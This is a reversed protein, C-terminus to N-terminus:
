HIVFGANIDWNVFVYMWKPMNLFRYMWISKGLKKIHCIASNNAIPPYCYLLEEAFSDYTSRIDCTCWLLLLLTCFCTFDKGNLLLLIDLVDLWTAGSARWSSVSRLAKDCWRWHKKPYSVSYLICQSICKVKTCIPSLDNPVHIRIGKDYKKLSTLTQKRTVSTM